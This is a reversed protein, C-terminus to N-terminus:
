QAIMRKISAVDSRAVLKTGRLQRKR